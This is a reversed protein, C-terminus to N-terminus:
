THTDESDFYRRCRRGTNRAWAILYFNGFIWAVGKPIPPVSSMPPLELLCIAILTNGALWLVGVVLIEAARARFTTEKPAPVVSDAALATPGASSPFLGGAAGLTSHRASMALKLYRSLRWAAIAILALIM